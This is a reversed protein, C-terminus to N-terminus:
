RCNSQTCCLKKIGTICGHENSGDSSHASTDGSCFYKYTSDCEGSCFPATGKWTCASPLLGSGALGAMPRTRMVPRTQQPAFM